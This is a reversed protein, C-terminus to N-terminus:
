VVTLFMCVSFLHLFLYSSVKWLSHPERFFSRGDGPEWGTSRLCAEPLLPPVPVGTCPAARAEEECPEADASSLSGLGVTRRAQVTLTLVVLAGLLM